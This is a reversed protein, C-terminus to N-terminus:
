EFNTIDDDTGWLADPGPHILVFTEPKVPTVVGAARLATENHLMGAFTKGYGYFFPPRNIRDPSLSGLAGLPHCGVMRGTGAFDWGGNPEDNRADQVGTFGGNDWISYVGDDQEFPIRAHPDARYYLLPYEFANDIIFPRGSEPWDRDFRSYRADYDTATKLGEVYPGVRPMERVQAMTFEPKPYYRYPNESLIGGVDVGQGDPGWLARALWEAGWMADDGPRIGPYDKISDNGIDTTPYHNFDNHFLELGVDAARILARVQIRRAQDRARSLSPLLIALLLSVIGMVVLVEILTFGRFSTYRKSKKM